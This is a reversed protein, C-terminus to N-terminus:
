HRDLWARLDDQTGQCRVDGRRKALQFDYMPDYYESLLPEIWRDHATTQADQQHRLLATQMLEDLQQYRLGGLRRAIRKLAERLGQAFTAFGASPDDVLHEALLGEVYDRRIRAVRNPLSDELVLLPASSFQRWMTEPVHVAGIARSEDEILLTGTADSECELLRMALANEFNIQTPQKGPRRGFTSGRHRALGELDVPNPRTLLLDTKGVGTRGGVLVIPMSALVRETQNILFQRIAKYGGEVRPYDIGQEALWRQVIQSRQGGRFCFLAGTPNKEAFHVWGSLRQQRTTGSVLEHGLTLAADAGEQQYCRGVQERERDDLLPLNLAGPFSGKHFEVPARVDLLPRKDLLWASFQSTEITTM